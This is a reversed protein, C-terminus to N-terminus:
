PPRIKERSQVEGRNWAAAAILLAESYGFPDRSVEFKRTAIGCHACMLYLASKRSERMTKIEKRGRIPCAFLVHQNQVM